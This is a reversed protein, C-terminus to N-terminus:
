ETRSTGTNDDSVKKLHNNWIGQIKDFIYELTYAYTEETDDTLQTGRNGLVYSVIHVAEHAILRDSVEEAKFIVTMADDEVFCGALEDDTSDVVHTSAYKKVASLYDTTFVIKIDDPYIAMDFTYETHSM